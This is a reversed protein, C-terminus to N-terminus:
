SVLAIQLRPGLALKIDQQASKWLSRYVVFFQAGLVPMLVYSFSFRQLYIIDSKLSRSIIMIM